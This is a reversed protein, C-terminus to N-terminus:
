TSAKAAKSILKDIGKTGYKTLYSTAMQKGSNYLVENVFKRGASVEKKNLLKYQRELSIRENIVKLESNSLEEPRKGNLKVKRLHDDSIVTIDDNDGKNSGVRGKRKGWRMGFIGFHYLSDIPAETSVQPPTDWPLPENSSKRKMDFILRQLEQEKRLRVLLEDLEKDSLEKITKTKDVAHYLSEIPKETSISPFDYSIKDNSGMRKLEGILYQLENEKRLRILLDDLEKDTSNKITKTRDAM